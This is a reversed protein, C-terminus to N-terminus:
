METILERLRRLTEKVKTANEDGMRLLMKQGSSSNELAEDAFEFLVHPRVLEIPAQLQPTELLHDIVEVLRDNFYGNPYGLEQYAGQFLPYFRQYLDTMEQLDADSIIAVYPAYREYNSESITYRGSNGEVDGESEIRFQDSIQGVPRIREAVHERPLNDVTAVIKEIMGSDVLLAGIADGFVDVLGLKFYEDSQDLSPLPVLDPPEPTGAEIEAVPHLPGPLVEPEVVEVPPPPPPEEVPQSIQMWYYWLAGAAGIVLVIPILWQTTQRNM